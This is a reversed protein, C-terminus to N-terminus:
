NCDLEDLEGVQQANVQIVEGVNLFHELAEQLVAEEGRCQKEPAGAAIAQFPDYGYIILAM